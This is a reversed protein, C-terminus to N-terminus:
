INKSYSSTFFLVGVDQCCLNIFLWPLRLCIVRSNRNRIVSELFKSDDNNIEIWMFFLGWDVLKRWTSEYFTFRKECTLLAWCIILISWEFSRKSCNGELRFFRKLIKLVLLRKFSLEEPWKWKERIPSELSSNESFVEIELMWDVISGMHIARIAPLLSSNRLNCFSRLDLLINVPTPACCIRLAYTSFCPWLIASCCSSWGSNLNFHKLLCLLINAKSFFDVSLALTLDVFRM